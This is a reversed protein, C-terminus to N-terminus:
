GRQKKRWDTPRQGTVQKFTRNFHPINNFGTTFAVDAITKRWEERL